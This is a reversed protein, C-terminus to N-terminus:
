LKNIFYTGAMTFNYWYYFEIKKKINQKGLLAVVITMTRKPRLFPSKKLFKKPNTSLGKKTLQYSIINFTSGSSTVFTPTYISILPRQYDYREHLV